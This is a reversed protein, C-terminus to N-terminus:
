NVVHPVELGFPAIEAAFMEGSSTRMQYTGHMAGVATKLPCFSTYSISDGPALVPQEGVVGPGKVEEVNGDSDTIIWHRSLLQVTESGLNTITVTYVFLYQQEEPSSRDPDFHSEVEVRVDRTTAVSM